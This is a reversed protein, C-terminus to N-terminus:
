VAVPKPLTARLGDVVAGALQRDGRAELDDARSGCVSRFWASVSGTVWTTPAGALRARCHVVRGEEIDVVAGVVWREGNSSTDVGLQCSGSQSPDLALLPLALLFATEIDIRGIPATGDPLQRREWSAASVLPAVAQRLWTTVAYPTGRGKMKTAEVQGVMRMAVLRRELSPYSVGAIVADLQTLSLPRAALARLLTTSWGDVLAKIVAKAAITGPEIPGKPSSALWAELVRLVGVLSHGPECLAYRASGDSRERSLVGAEALLTLHKRVTTQPPMGVSERLDALSTPQQALTQLLTLAYGGARV